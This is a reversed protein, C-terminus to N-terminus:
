KLKIIKISEPFSPFTMVNYLIEARIKNGVQLSKLPISANQSDVIQMRLLTEASYYYTVEASERSKLTLKMGIEKQQGYLEITQNSINIEMIEGEIEQLLKTTNTLPANERIVDYIRRTTDSVVQNQSQDLPSSSPFNDREKPSMTPRVDNIIEEVSVITPSAVIQKVPQNKTPEQNIYNQRMLLYILEGIVIIVLVGGILTMVKKM